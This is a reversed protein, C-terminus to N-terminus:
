KKKNDFISLFLCCIQLLKIQIILWIKKVKVLQDVRFFWGCAKLPRAKENKQLFFLFLNINGIGVAKQTQNENAHLEPL